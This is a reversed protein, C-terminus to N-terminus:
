LGKRWNKLLNIVGSALPPVFWGRNKLENIVRDFRILQTRTNQMQPHKDVDRRFYLFWNKKVDTDPSLVYSKLIQPTINGIDHMNEHTFGSGNQALGAAIYIDTVPCGVCKETVMQIRRKMLIVADEPDNPDLPNGLEEKPCLGYSRINGWRDKVPQERETEAQFYSVQAIGMSSWADWPIDTGACQIAIGAAEYTDMEDSTRPAYKEAENVRKIVDSDKWGGDIGISCPYRAPLIPRRGM